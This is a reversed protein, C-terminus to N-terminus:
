ERVRQEHIAVIKLEEGEPRVTWFNKTKGAVSHKKNRVEFTILFEIMTEGENEGATFTVPEVLSYKREPWRKCYNDVDKKVFPALKPGKGFYTVPYAFYRTQAAVDTTEADRLYQTVLNKVTERTLNQSPPPEEAPPPPKSELDPDELAKKEFWEREAEEFDVRSDSKLVPVEPWTSKNAVAMTMEIDLSQTTIEDIEGTTPLGKRTQYRTLAAILEPSKRGDVDGFYMNRRRLEEQVARVVDDAFTNTAILLFLLCFLRNVM